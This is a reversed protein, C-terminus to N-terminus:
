ARLFKERTFVCLGIIFGLLELRRLLLAVGDWDSLDIVLHWPEKMYPFNIDFELHPAEPEAALLEFFAYIDFPLCFPFFQTLDIKYDSIDHKVNGSSGSDPNPDTGIDPDPEPWPDAISGQWIEEQTLTDPFEQVDPSPVIPVPLVTVEEGTDPSVAPRANTYWEPYGDPIPVELPSVRELDYDSVIEKDDASGFWFWSTAYIRTRTVTETFYQSGDPRVYFRFYSGGDPRDLYYEANGSPTSNYIRMKAYDNYAFYMNGEWFWCVAYKHAAVSNFNSRMAENMSAFEPLAYSVIGKSWLFTKVREVFGMDVGYSWTGDPYYFITVGLEGSWEMYDSVAEITQDVTWIVGLAMVVYGFAAAGASLAGAGYGATPTFPIIKTVVAATEPLASAEAKIPSWSVLLVCVLVVSILVRVFKLRM